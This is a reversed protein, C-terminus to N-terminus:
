LEQELTTALSKLAGITSEVLARRGGSAAGVASQALGAAASVLVTSLQSIQEHMAAAAGPSVLSRLPHLPLAFPEPPPSAPSAAAAGAAMAAAAGEPLLGRAEATALCELTPPRAYYFVAAYHTSRAVLLSPAPSPNPTLAHLPPPLAASTAGPSPSRHAGEGEAASRGGRGGSM